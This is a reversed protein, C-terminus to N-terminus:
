CVAFVLKVWNVRWKWRGVSSAKRLFWCARNRYKWFVIRLGCRWLACADCPCRVHLAPIACQSTAIDGTLVDTSEAVDGM